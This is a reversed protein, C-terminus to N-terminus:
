FDVGSDIQNYFTMVLKHKENIKEHNTCLESLENPKTFIWQAFVNFDNELSSTAYKSLFGSSLLEDSQDDLDSQGLMEIGNGLYKFESENIGYWEKFPFLNSYRKLLISSFEHHLNALMRDEYTGDNVIYIRKKFYTGGYIEYYFYMGKLLYVEDLNTNIFKTSYSSLFDVIIQKMGLAVSSDIQEGMGSIPPELWHKPFISESFEYNVKVAYTKHIEPFFGHREELTECQTFTFIIILISLCKKVLRFKNRTSKM